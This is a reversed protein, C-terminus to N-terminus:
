YDGRSLFSNHVQDMGNSLKEQVCCWERMPRYKLYTFMYMHVCLLTLFYVFLLRQPCVAYSSVYNILGRSVKYFFGFM